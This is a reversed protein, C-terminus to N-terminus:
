SSATESVSRGGATRSQRGEAQSQRDDVVTTLWVGGRTFGYGSGM